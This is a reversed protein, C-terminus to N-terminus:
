KATILDPNNRYLHPTTLNKVPLNQHHREMIEMPLIKLDPHGADSVLDRTEEIVSLPVELYSFQDPTVPEDSRIEYRRVYGHLIPVAKVAGPKTGIIMGHNGAILSRGYCMLSMPLRNYRDDNRTNKQWSDIRSSVKNSVAIRKKFNSHNNIFSGLQKVWATYWKPDTFMDLIIRSFFCKAWFAQSGYEYELKGNDEEEFLSAYVRAYMRQHTLSITSKDEGTFVESFLDEQPRLGDELVTGLIDVGEEDSVGDYKSNGKPLYRYRGTGHFFETGNLVSEIEARSNEYMKELEPNLVLGSKVHERRLILETLADLM